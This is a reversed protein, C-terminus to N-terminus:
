IGPDSPPVQFKVTVRFSQQTPADTAIDFTATKPGASAASLAVLLAFEGGPPIPHSPVTLVCGRLSSTSYLLRVAKKGRNLITVTAPKTTGPRVNGFDLSRPDTALPLGVDAKVLVWSLRREPDDTEVYLRKAYQQPKKPAVFTLRVALPEEPAFWGSLAAAKVCPCGTRVKLISVRRPSPNPIALVVERKAEPEVFGFDHEMGPPVTTKKVPPRDEATKKEAPKAVNVPPTGKVDRPREEAPKGAPESVPRPAPKERINLTSATHVEEPRKDAPGLATILVGGIVALVVVCALAIIVRRRGGRRVIALETEFESPDAM